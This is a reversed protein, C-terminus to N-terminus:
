PLIKKKGGGLGGIGLGELSPKLPLFFRAWGGLARPGASQKVNFQLAGPRVQPSQSRKRPQGPALRRKGLRWTVQTVPAERTLEEHRTQSPWHVPQQPQFAGVKRFSRNERDRSPGPRPAELVRPLLRMWENTVQVPRLFHPQRRGATAPPRPPAAAQPSHQPNPSPQLFAFSTPAEAERTGPPWSWPKRVTM